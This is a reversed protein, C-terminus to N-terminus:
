QTTKQIPLRFIVTTGSSDAGTGGTTALNVVEASVEQGLQEKLLQIRQRTLKWGQGLGGTQHNEDPHYGPGNDTVECILQNEERRFNVTIRGAAGLASVGHMVANEVHPQILLPPVEVAFLDLGPDIQITFTFPFRLQELQLYNRIMDIEENLGIAPKSSQSLITRVLEGFRALYLNAEEIQNRNVLNQISSLANFLFHPNMRSRVADVELQAMKRKLNLRNERRKARIRLTLVIILTLVFAGALSYWFTTLNITRPSPPSYVKPWSEMTQLSYGVESGYGSITNDYAIGVLMKPLSQIYDIFPRNFSLDGLFISRNDKKLKLRNCELSDKSSFYVILKANKDNNGRTSDFFSSFRDYWTVNSFDTLFWYHGIFDKTSHKKGDMDIFNFPPIKTGIRGNENVKNKEALHRQYDTGPYLASFRLFLKDFDVDPFTSLQNEALMAQYWYLDWGSLVMSAINFYQETSNDFRSTFPIETRYTEIFDSIFERYSDSKYGNSSNLFQRFRRLSDVPTQDTLKFGWRTFEELQYSLIAYKTEFEMFDIFDPSLMSKNQIISKQNEQSTQISKKPNGPMFYRSLSNLAVQDSEQCNSFQLSSIDDLDLSFSVSDGPKIFVQIQDKNGPSAWLPNNYSDDYYYIDVTGYTLQYDFSISFRGDKDPFIPFERNSVQDGPLYAIIKKNAINLMQGNILVNNKGPSRVSTNIIEITEFFYHVYGGSLSVEFVLSEPTYGGFRIQAPHGASVPWKITMRTVTDKTPFQRYFSSEHNTIDYARSLSFVGNSDPVPPFTDWKNIRSAKKNDYEFSLTDPAPGNLSPFFEHILFKYYSDNYRNLIRPFEIIHKIEKNSEALELIASYLSDVGNIDLINGQHDMVFSIPYYLETNYLSYLVGPQYWNNTKTNEDRKSSRSLWFYDSATGQYSMTLCYRELSASDVRFQYKTIRKDNTQYTIQPNTHSSVIMEYELIDGQNFFYRLYQGDANIHFTWIFLTICSLMVRIGFGSGRVGFGMGKKMARKNEIKFTPVRIRIGARSHTTPPTPHTNPFGSPLDCVASPLPEDQAPLNFDQPPLM